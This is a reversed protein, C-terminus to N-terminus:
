LHLGEGVDLAEVVWSASVAPQVVEAGDLELLDERLLHCLVLRGGSPTVAGGTRLRARTDRNGASGTGPIPAPPPSTPRLPPRPAM